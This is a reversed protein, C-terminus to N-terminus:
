QCPPAWNSGVRAERYCLIVVVLTAIYLGGFFWQGTRIDVGGSTLRHLFTYIYVHLAPYVLPGTGGKIAAYDREGVLYQSVQEM